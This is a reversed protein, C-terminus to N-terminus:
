SGIVSKVRFTTHHGLLQRMVARPYMLEFVALSLIPKIRHSLWITYSTVIAARITKVTESYAM